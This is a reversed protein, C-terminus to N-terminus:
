LSSRGGQIRTEDDLGRNAKALKEQKAENEVTFRAMPRIELREDPIPEGTFEDLGYTGADVKALAREVEDLEDQLSGVITTEVERNITEQAADAPQSDSALLDTVEEDGGGAAVEGAILQHLREREAILLQRARETDV